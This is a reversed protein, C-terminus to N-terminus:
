IKFIESLFCALELEGAPGVFIFCVAVQKHPATWSANTLRRRCVGSGLVGDKGKGRNKLERQRRM